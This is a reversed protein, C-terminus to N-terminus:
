LDQALRFGVLMDRHTKSLGNRDASRLYVPSTFWNGGRIVTEFQCEGNLWASGNQPADKYSNHYCDEVLEWVNGHMDYLGFNNASFSKVEVTGDYSASCEGAPRVGEKPENRGYQAKSCDIDDGWFYKTTTGARSAYEWEAESPLRFTQGTTMNLWPIFQTTIDEYSVYIVPRNGRGWGEDEPKHTCAGANVCADWQTFTVETESMKFSKVTVTHIPQEDDRETSGMQFTGAPITLMKPTYTSNSQKETASQSCGILFITTSVLPYLLKNNIPKIMQIEM